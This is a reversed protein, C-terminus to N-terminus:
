NSLVLVEFTGPVPQPREETAQKPAYRATPLYITGTAPDIAGTRAGLQTAVSAIKRPTAATTDIVSLTGDGGSPIYARDHAGDYLVADPRPGIALDPLIRGTEADMAKAVGNACAAILTGQHTFALGSPEDCGALKTRRTVKRTKLDIQALENKDEVNVYLRGAGDTAAFELKGGVAISGTVRMAKPDLISITGDNGNMIYARGSAADWIAADPKQGVPITAKIQGTRADFLTVTNTTGNTSLGMGTGPLIVAQHVRQGPVFTPTVVGTTLDVTQVGDGRAILLRHGESDVTAYDWPGDPGPIRKAITMASAPTAALAFAALALLTTKM